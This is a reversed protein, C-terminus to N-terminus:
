VSISTIRLREHRQRGLWFEGVDLQRVGEAAVGPPNSTTRSVQAARCGSGPLTPSTAFVGRVGIMTKVSRASSANIAGHLSARLIIQDFIDRAAAPV